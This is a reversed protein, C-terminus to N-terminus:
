YKGYSVKKMQNKISQITCIKIWKKRKEKKGKLFNTMLPNTFYKEFCSIIKSMPKTKTKITRKIIQNIRKNKMCYGQYEGQSNKSQIGGLFFKFNDTTRSRRRESNERPFKEGGCAAFVTRIIEFISCV